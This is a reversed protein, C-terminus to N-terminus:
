RPRSVPASNSTTPSLSHTLFALSCPNFVKTASYKSVTSFISPSTTKWFNVFPIASPTYPSPFLQSTRPTTQHPELHCGSLHRLKSKYNWLTKCAEERLILPTQGRLVGKGSCYDLFGFFVGRGGAICIDSLRSPLVISTCFREYCSPTPLVKDVVLQLGEKKQHSPYPLFSANFLERQVPLGVVYKLRPSALNASCHILDTYLAPPSVCKAQVCSGLDVCVSRVQLM